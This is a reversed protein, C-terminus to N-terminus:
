AGDGSEKGRDVAARVRAVLLDFEENQGPVHEASHTRKNNDFEVSFSGKKSQELAKGHRKGMFWCGEYKAGSPFTYTGYGHRMDDEYQGIYSSGDPYNEVGFGSPKDGFWDGAYQAGDKWVLCGSGKRIGDEFEGAFRVRQKPDDESYTVSGFGHPKGEKLGGRYVSGDQLQKQQVQGNAVKSKKGAVNEVPVLSPLKHPVSPLADLGPKGGNRSGSLPSKREMNEPACKVEFDAKFHGKSDQYVDYNGSGPIGRQMCVDSLMAVKALLRKLNKAKLHVTVFIELPTASKSPVFGSQRKDSAAIAEAQQVWTTCHEGEARVGQRVRENVEEELEKGMGKPDLKNNAVKRQQHGHDGLDSVPKLAKLKELQMNERLDDGM